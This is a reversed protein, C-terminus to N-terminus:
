DIKDIQHNTLMFKNLSGSLTIGVFENTSSLTRDIEVIYLDKLDELQQNTRIGGILQLGDDNLKVKQGQYPNKIM